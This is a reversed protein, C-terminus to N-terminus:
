EERVFAAQCTPDILYESEDGSVMTITYTGGATYNKTKLNFQWVGDALNYEFENGDTGFGVPLADETVDQADGGGTSQFTVQIAPPATLELDTVEYGNADFLEAKLPLARNGRATVPGSAMPPGFGVCDVTPATPGECSRPIDSIRFEDIVGDVVWSYQRGITFIEPLPSLLDQASATHSIRLVGDIYTKM